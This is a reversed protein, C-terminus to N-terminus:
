KGTLNKGERLYNAVVDEWSLDKRIRYIRPNTPVDRRAMTEYSFTVVEGIRPTPIEVDTAPVSFETGTPRIHRV